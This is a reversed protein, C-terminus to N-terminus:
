EHNLKVYVGAFPETSNVWRAPWLMPNHFDPAPYILDRVGVRLGLRSSLGKSWSMEVLGAERWQHNVNHAGQKVTFDAFGGGTGVFPEFRKLHLRFLYAGTLEHMNAPLLQMPAGSSGNLLREQFRTNNYNVEMGWTALPFVSFSFLAGPSSATSQGPLKQGNPGRTDSTLSSTFQGTAAAGMTGGYRMYWQANAATTIVWVAAAAAGLCSIKRWGRRM